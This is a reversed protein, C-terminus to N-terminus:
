ANRLLESYQAALEGPAVVYSTTRERAILDPAYRELIEVAYEVKDEVRQGKPQYTSWLELNELRNDLKDGNRHHVVEDPQLPRDLAVAMVLRHEAENTRGPTLHRLEDPVPVVRYGHHVYGEGSPTVIPEDAMVDGHKELRSRHSRCLGKSHTPRDCGEVTCTEPQRRRGLPIDAEVDGNRLWRQYHGHCLGHADVPEDCGDITCETPRDEGHLPDGHRLVRRYHKECWGRARRPRDCEEVGCPPPDSRGRVPVDARVDGHRKWRFYHASCWTRAFVEADCGEVTCTSVDNGM